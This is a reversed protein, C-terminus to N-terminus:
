FARVQMEICLWCLNQTPLISLGLMKFMKFTKFFSCLSYAITIAYLLQTILIKLLNEILQSCIPQHIGPFPSTQIHAPIPPKSAELLSQFPLTTIRLSPPYHSNYTASPAPYSSGSHKPYCPSWGTFFMTGQVSSLSHRNIVASRTLLLTVSRLHILVTFLFVIRSGFYCAPYQMRHFDLIFYLLNLIVNQKMLTLVLFPFNDFM